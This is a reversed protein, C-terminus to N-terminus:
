KIEDWLAAMEAKSLDRLCRGRDAALSEVKAFRETFKVAAQHLAEEPDVGAFRSANVVSFLLDGLEEQVNAPDAEAMAERFEEVEESVKRLADEASEWEFGVEAARKQIKESRILAPLAKPVGRLRETQSTIGHERVKINEWKQLVKDVTKADVDSFIHPHRRIMKECEENVLDTFDFAKEEDALEAHMVVQLAVDGLEERLNETDDREIADVVEYAEEIMCRRLTEHTQVSDWPCKARLVKMLAVLREAAEGPTKAPEYLYAYAENRMSEM